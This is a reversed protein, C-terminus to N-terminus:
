SWRKPTIIVQIREDREAVPNDDFGGKKFGTTADWGDGVFRERVM